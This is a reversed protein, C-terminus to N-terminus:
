PEPEVLEPEPKPEPQPAPEEESESSESEIEPEPKTDEEVEKEIEDVIEDAIDDAKEELDEDPCPSDEHVVVGTKNVVILEMTEGNPGEIETVKATDKQQDTFVSAEAHFQIEPEDVARKEDNVITEVVDKLTPLEDKSKVKEDDNMTKIVEVAEKIPLMEAIELEVVPKLINDVVDSAEECGVVEKLLDKVGSDEVVEDVIETEDEIVDKTIDIETHFEHDTDPNFDDGSPNCPPPCAATQALSMHSEFNLAQSVAALCAISLQTRM